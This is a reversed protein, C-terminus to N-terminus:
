RIAASATAMDQMDESGYSASNRSELSDRHRLIRGAALEACRIRDRVSVGGKYNAELYLGPLFALRRDMGALRQSYAGHYLPLARAHSEIYLLDPEGKIGLLARLMRMVADLTRTADWAAAAPNRAGGLYSSLLVRGEPAHDPFLSSMWLCGNPLFASRRPVLFGSGNLRHAIKTRDFGTHVVNVPAYEIARLLRALEADLGGVLDAAADAPTSLVLQRSFASRPTGGTVGRTMWGGSVPWVESVRMTNRVRFGGERALIEALSAMGGAFSFVDPRGGSGRSWVKRLLAGLALSGYRKELATLRPMTAHAEALDVNSALPGAVYPEFVKELFEKGLRRTVFEAVSEQPNCGRPVLPEALLRLKGTTSFLPTTLLEGLRSPVEVLRDADLVYRTATPARARKSAELGAGRLFRDVESRFNMVMSAASELRYGEKVATRIKGGVRDAGEWVEVALGSRALCHAIALGSIGGGVVLVDLESM